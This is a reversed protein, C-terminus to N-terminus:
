CDIDPTMDEFAMYVMGLESWSEKKEGEHEGFMGHQLGNRPFAQQLAAGPSLFVGVESSPCGLSPMLAADSVSNPWM